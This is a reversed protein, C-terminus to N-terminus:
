SGQTRDRAKHREFIQMVLTLQDHDVTQDTENIERSRSEIDFTDLAAAVKAATAHAGVRDLLDLGLQFYWVVLEAYADPIDPSNGM